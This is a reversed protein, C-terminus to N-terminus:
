KWVTHNVDVFYIIKWRFGIMMADIINLFMEDQSMQKGPRSKKTIKADICRDRIISWSVM